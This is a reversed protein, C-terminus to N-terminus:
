ASKFFKLLMSVDFVIDGTLYVLVMAVMAFTFFVLVCEKVNKSKLDTFFPSLVEASECFTLLVPFLM